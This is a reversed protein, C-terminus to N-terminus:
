ICGKSFQDKPRKTKTEASPKLDISRNENLKNKYLKMKREKWAEIM